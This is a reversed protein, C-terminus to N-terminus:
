ELSRALSRPRGGVLSAIWAGVGCLLIYIVVWLYGGVIHHTTSYTFLSSVVVPSISIGIVQALETLGNTTGLANSSPVSERVLIMVLTFGMCGIRSGFLVLGTVTWILAKGEVAQSAAAIGLLIFGAFTFIWSQMTRLFLATVKHSPQHDRPSSPSSPSPPSVTSPPDPRLLVTMSLKLFISVFGMASLALGIESPNFGLGGSGRDTYAMLVFIVNFAAAIFGLAFSAFSIYRITPIRLLTLLSPPKSDDDPSPDNTPATITSPDPQDDAPPLIPEKTGSKSKSPLTEDLVFVIILSVVVAFVSTILCPLLYPYTELLDELRGVLGPTSTAKLGHALHSLNSGDEGQRRIPNAFTGGIWPGIVFGLASVIDYLPFATSQNTSDSLEGVVSHIAGIIGAFFGAFFRTAIFTEISTSFGFVLTSLALGTTGIFIVPIRGIKDSLRGWPYISLLQAIHSISSTLGSYYGVKEKGIGSNELIQQLMLNIYPLSQTGAIPVLLKITYIALLQRKPLPNANHTPKRSKSDNPSLLPDNETPQVSSSSSSPTDVVTM